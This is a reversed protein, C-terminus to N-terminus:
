RFYGLRKLYETAIVDGATHSQELRPLDLGIREAEDFLKALKAATREIAEPLYMVRRYHREDGREEETMHAYAACTM